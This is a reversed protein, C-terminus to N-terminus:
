QVLKGGLKIAAPVNATPINVITGDPKQMKVTSGGGQPPAPANSKSAARAEMAEVIQKRQEPPFWVGTQAHYATGEASNMWSRAKMLMDIQPQSMRFGSSPKAVEFFAELLAEDKPGTFQGSNVYDRGYKVASQASTLNKSEAANAAAAQQPTTFGAPATDGPKLQLVKGDPGIVTTGGKEPPPGLKESDGTLLNRVYTGDGTTYFHFAKNNAQVFSSISSAPFAKGVLGPDLGYKQAMDPTVAINPRTDGVQKPNNQDSLDWLTGNIVRYNAQANRLDTQAQQADRRAKQQPTLEDYSLPVTSTTGDDNAVIKLEAGAAKIQDSITKAANNLAARQGAGKQRLLERSFATADNPPLMLPTGDDQMVPTGDPQRVTIPQAASQRTNANQQAAQAQMMQAQRQQQLAQQQMRMQQMQAGGQLAAGMGAMAGRKGPYQASASMGSGFSYLFTSLANALNEKSVVKRLYGQNQIEKSHNDLAKGHLDLGQNLRSITDSLTEPSQPSIGDPGMPLDPSDDNMASLLPSDDPM